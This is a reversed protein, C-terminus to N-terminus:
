RLVCLHGVTLTPCKIKELLFMMGVVFEDL